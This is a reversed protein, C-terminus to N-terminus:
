KVTFISLSTVTGGVATTVSIRGTTAGAPVYATIATRSDTNIVAAIGDFTVATAGAFHAGNITVLKGPKAKTPSFSKIKPNGRTSYAGIDCSAKRKAGRQDPNPCDASPIVKKIAPSGALLPITETPGGNPTLAGLASDLTHSHSISPASFGCTGDDDINYGHDTVGGSCASGAFSAAVITATLTTAGGTNDIGGGVGNSGNTGSV